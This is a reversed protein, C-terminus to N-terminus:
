EGEQKQNLVFAAKLKEHTLINDGLVFEMRYGGPYHKQYIEHRDLRRGELVGLDYKVFGQHSCYHSGLVVGDEAMAYATGEGGGKANSFCMIVPLEEISKNEPNFVVEESM